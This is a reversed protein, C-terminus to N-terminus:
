AAVLEEVVEAASIPDVRGAMSAYIGQQALLELHTGQEAIQGSDLVFIQDCSTLTQVRHSVIVITRHGKLSRLQATLLQEHLPDLASTPEDLIIIPAETLLARAIAVRQRQGGSLNHGGEAIMTDYGAPLGRIFDDAGALAAAHHIQEATAGPLGYAINEAISTPLLISDQLVIAIHRRLDQLKIQRVDIDDLRIAGETPDYFRPLLNLLTTKGGGSSGVFAVMEGPNIEVNIRDLVNPGGDYHFGINDLSLTRPAQQLEIAGAVDKIASQADLVEFVRHASAIGSQLSGGSGSIKCLPDYLMGLYTMFLMLDGITM